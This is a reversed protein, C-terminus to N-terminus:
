TELPVLPFGYGVEAHLEGKLYNLYTAFFYGWILRWKKWSGTKEERVEGNKRGKWGPELEKGGQKM